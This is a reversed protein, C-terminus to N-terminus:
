DDFLDTLINDDKLVNIILWTLGVSVALLFVLLSGLTMTLEALYLIVTILLLLFLGRMSISTWSM